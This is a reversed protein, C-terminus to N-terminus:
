LGLEFTKFYKTGCQWIKSVNVDVNGRSGPQHYPNTLRAWLLKRIDTKCKKCGFCTRLGQKFNKFNNADCQWIKLLKVDAIGGLKYNGM